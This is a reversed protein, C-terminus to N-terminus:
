QTYAQRILNRIRLFWKKQGVTWKVYRAIRPYELPASNVSTSDTYGINFIYKRTKYININRGNQAFTTYVLHYHFIPLITAKYVIETLRTKQNKIYPHPYKTYFTKTGKFMTNLFQREIERNMECKNELSEYPPRTPDKGITANM